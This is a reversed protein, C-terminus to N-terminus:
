DEQRPAGDAFTWKWPRIDVHEFLGAKQYPDGAQWEQAAELSEAEVVLLSGAMKAGDDSMLPGAIRVMAGSGAVFKLHEDRTVSRLATSYPKDICFVVFLM